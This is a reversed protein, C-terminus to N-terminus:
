HAQLREVLKDGFVTAPTWFGGGKDSRPVELALRAAAEGLMESTSGYGPDREGAVKGGLSRGDAPGGHLRSAHCGGGEGAAGPGEGPTPVVHRGLLWRTPPVVAAAIFGGLGAGIGAATLRGRLGRGTMIAEDYVFDRGYAHGSLHNSRHVIRTNIASMVFPGAWSGFEGDYSALRVDPQRPHGGEDGVCLAFPNGLVKRLAPERKVEALVNMLSAATGGSFGGRMAKIRLKVRVCPEGFRQQA